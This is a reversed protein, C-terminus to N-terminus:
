GETLGGGGGIPAITLSIPGSASMQPTSSDTVDV